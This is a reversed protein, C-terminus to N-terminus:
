WQSTITDAMNKVPFADFGSIAEGRQLHRADLDAIAPPREARDCRREHRHEDHEIGTGFPVARPSACARRRRHERRGFQPLEARYRAGFLDHEPYEANM